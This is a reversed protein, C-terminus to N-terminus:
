EQSSVPLFDMAKSLLNQSDSSNFMFSPLNGNDPSSFHLAFEPCIYYRFHLIPQFKVNAPVM